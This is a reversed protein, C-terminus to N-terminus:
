TNTGYQDKENEQKIIELVENPINLHIITSGQTSVNIDTKSPEQWGRHKGKVALFWRITGMDNGENVKNTIHYEAKDILRETEQKLLGKLESNEDLKEVYKWVAVRSVGMKQAIISLIGASGELAKKFKNPTIKGM